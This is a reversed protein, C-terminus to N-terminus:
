LEMAPLSTTSIPDVVRDFTVDFIQMKMENRRVIHHM